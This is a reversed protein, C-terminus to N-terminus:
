SRSGRWNRPRCTPRVAVDADAARGGRGGERGPAPPQAPTQALATASMGAAAAVTLFNRRNM